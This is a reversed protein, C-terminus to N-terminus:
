IPFKFNNERQRVELTTVHLLSGGNIAQSSPEYIGPLDKFEEFLATNTSLYPKTQSSSLYTAQENLINLLEANSKSSPSSTISFFPVSFLEAALEVSIILQTWIEPVLEANAQVM